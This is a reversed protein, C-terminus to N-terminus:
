EQTHAKVLWREHLDGPQDETKFKGMTGGSDSSILLDARNKKKRSRDHCHEMTFVVKVGGSESRALKLNTKTYRHILGM